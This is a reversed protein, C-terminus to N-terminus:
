NTVFPHFSTLHLLLKFVMRSFGKKGTLSKWFTRSVDTCHFRSKVIPWAVLLILKSYRRPKNNKDLNKNM